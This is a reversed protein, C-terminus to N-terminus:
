PASTDQESVDLAARAADLATAVGISDDLSHVPSDTRGDAVYRALAAAQWVLGQRGRLGTPESWRDADAGRHVAFSAPFVFHDTYRVTATSGAIMALGPTWATISTTM